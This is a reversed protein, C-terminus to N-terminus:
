TMKRHVITSVRSVALVNAEPDQRLSKWYEVAGNTHPTDFPSVQKTYAVFQERLAAATHTGSNNGDRLQDIDRQLLRGLVTAVNVLSPTADDVVHADLATRCHWVSSAVWGTGRRLQLKATIGLACSM